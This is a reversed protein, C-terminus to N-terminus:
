GEAISNLDGAAALGANGGPRPDLSRGARDECHHAIDRDRSTTDRGDIDFRLLIAVNRQRDPIEDDDVSCNSPGSCFDDGGSADIRAAALHAICLQLIGANISQGDLAAVRSHGDLRIHAGNWVDRRHVYDLVVGAGNLHHISDRKGKRISNPDADGSVRIFLCDGIRQPGGMVASSWPVITRRVVADRHVTRIANRHAIRRGTSLIDHLPGSWNHVISINVYCDLM